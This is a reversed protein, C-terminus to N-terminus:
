FRFYLFPNFSGDVLYATVIIFLLFLSLIEFINIIPKINNITNLKIWIKKPIPTSSICAFLLIIGYSRIYYLFENTYVPINKFGFMSIIYQLAESINSANFIVFGIIVFFLVYFHSLIHFKNIYKYLFIKEFIILAAFLFGWLIFTWNAGHWLGTLSWVILINRYSKLRTTKSGGLPIYVYDRFWNSLSIHWRRWFETISKSIYPYNFNENISFGFIHALGIAMDSYGSFDFYIHLTFSIAYLWYFLISKNDSIIFINCLESLQNSILVKKSLGIIFRKIGISTLAFSHRRISLQNSIDAYRVIPGAILQPFFSIYTALKIINKQAVVEGKYIDILYSLIQFTYFSIGIPLSIRLLNVSLGSLSNFNMIIFDAYKFICLNLLFLIISSSFIFKCINKYRYKEILIGYVYGLLISILMIVIYVPEGWAYFILSASLLIYNKIRYPVLFYCILLIPLFIYLFTISSFLM